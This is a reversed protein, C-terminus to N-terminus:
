CMAWVVSPLPLRLAAVALILVEVNKLFQTM